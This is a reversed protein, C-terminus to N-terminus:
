GSPEEWNTHLAGQEQRDVRVYTHAGFFDRQAQTLNQPLNEARYSDFYALSASMAGVPIGANISASLCRRWGAQAGKMASNIEEDLLLNALRGDRGYASKIRDLLSARIICGGKWIRSIESLNVNWKYEESAARILNFGQAYACVFSAHLADHTAGILEKRRGDYVKGGSMEIIRSARVREEKLSSIIRAEVAANITPTAVGLELAADTTWKGTGKQGAQDLILEVLPAGTVADRVRLIKSTIELLYSELAGANWEAFTDALADAEMGGLRRLVDYAEAIAQMLGYEIGNHVTKVFHGAGSPGVYTTCAGDETKAAISEWIPRINEYAERSGGPMLSPGYLAGYEGGSVGTGIFNLGEGALRAERQATDKYFSNGGDILTDGAELFLKFQEITWDVPAGAKVMLMIKRPRQLSQVFEKADKAAVIKKGVARKGAFDDIWKADRDWVAVTFGNREMNLALSAGMVGLGAMGIDAEAM